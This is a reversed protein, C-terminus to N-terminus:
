APTKAFELHPVYGTMLQPVLTIRIYVVPTGKRKLTRGLKENAQHLEQDNSPLFIVEAGKPIRRTLAPNDLVHKMFLAFLEHNRRAQEQRTM